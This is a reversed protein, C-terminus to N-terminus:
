ACYHSVIFGFKVLEKQVVIETSTSGLGVNINLGIGNHTKDAQKNSGVATQPFLLYGVHFNPYQLASRLITNLPAHGLENDYCYILADGGGDLVNHVKPFIYRWLTNLTQLLLQLLFTRNHMKSRVLKSVMQIFINFFMSFGDFDM